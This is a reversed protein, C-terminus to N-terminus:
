RADICGVLMTSSTEIGPLMRLDQEIQSGLRLRQLHGWMNLRVQSPSGSGCHFDETLM